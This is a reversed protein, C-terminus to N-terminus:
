SSVQLRVTQRVLYMYIYLICTLIINTNFSKLGLNIRLKRQEGLGSEYIIQALLFLFNRILRPWFIKVQIQDQGTVYM